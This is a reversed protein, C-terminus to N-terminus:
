RPRELGPRPLLDHKCADPLFATVWRYGPLTYGLDTAFSLAAARHNAECGLAYDWSVTKRARPSAGCYVAIRAGLTSTPGLYKTTIM